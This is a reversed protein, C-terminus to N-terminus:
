YKHQSVRGQTSTFLHVLVSRSKRVALGSEGRHSITLFSFYPDARLSLACCKGDVQGNPGKQQLGAM